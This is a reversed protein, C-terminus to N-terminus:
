ETIASETKNTTHFSVENIKNVDAGKKLLVKVTNASGMYSAVHLAPEGAGKTTNQADFIDRYDARAIPPLHVEMAIETSAGHEILIEAIDGRDKRAAAM